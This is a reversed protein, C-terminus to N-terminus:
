TTKGIGSRGQVVAIEGRQVTLDFAFEDASSPYSFRLDKVELM